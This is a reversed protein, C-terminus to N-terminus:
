VFTIGAATKIKIAINTKSVKEVSSKYIELYRSSYTFFNLEYFQTFKSWMSTRKYTNLVM